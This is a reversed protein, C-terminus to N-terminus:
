DTQLDLQQLFEENSSFKEMARLLQPVDTGAALSSLFRRLMHIKPLMWDDVLLEEKRTGSRSIDVAPWIRKEAFQRDLQLEMNGTGKFEEFILDDM